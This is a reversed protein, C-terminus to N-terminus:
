LHTLTTHDNSFFLGMGGPLWGLLVTEGTTTWRTDV